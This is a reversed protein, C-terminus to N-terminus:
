DLPPSFVDAFELFLAALPRGAPVPRVQDHSADQDSKVRALKRDKKNLPAVIFGGQNPLVPSARAKGKGKSDATPSLSSSGPVPAPLAPRGTPDLHTLAQTM